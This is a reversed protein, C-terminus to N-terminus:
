HGVFFVCSNCRSCDFIKKQDENHFVIVLPNNASLWGGNGFPQNHWDTFGPRAWRYYTDNDNPDIDIAFFEKRCIFTIPYIIGPPMAEIIGLM